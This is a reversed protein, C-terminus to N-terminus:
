SEASPILSHLARFKLRYFMDKLPESLSPFTGKQPLKLVPLYKEFLSDESLSLMYEFPSLSYKLTGFESDMDILKLVDGEVL